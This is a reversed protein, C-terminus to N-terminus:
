HDFCIYISVRLSVEMADVAPADTTAIAAHARTRRPFFSPTTTCLACATTSHSPPALHGAAAAIPNIAFTVLLALASRGTLLPTLHLLFLMLSM